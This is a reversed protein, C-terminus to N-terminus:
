DHQLCAVCLRKECKMQESSLLCLALVGFSRISVVSPCCLVAKLTALAYEPQLVGGNADVTIRAVDVRGGRGGERRGEECIGTTSPM